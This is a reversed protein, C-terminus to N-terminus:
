TTPGTASGLETALASPADDLDVLTARLDSHEYALVRILGRLAAQRRIERAMATSPSVAAPDGAVAATAARALRRRDHPGDVRGVLDFGEGPQRRRGHGDPRGTHVRVVGAPPREPDAGTEAFAARVESEDTLDATIM